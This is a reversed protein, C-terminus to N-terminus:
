RKLTDLAARVDEIAKIMNGIAVPDHPGTTQRLAAVHQELLERCDEVIAVRLARLGDENAKSSGGHRM